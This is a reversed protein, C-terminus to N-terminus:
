TRLFLIVLVSYESFNEGVSGMNIIATFSIISQSFAFPLLASTQFFLLLSSSKDTQRDTENWRFLRIYVDCLM